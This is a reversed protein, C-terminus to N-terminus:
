LDLDETTGNVLLTSLGITKIEEFYPPNESKWHYSLDHLWSQILTLLTRQFIMRTISEPNYFALVKKTDLRAIEEFTPTKFIRMVNTNAYMLFPIHQYKEMKLIKLDPSSYREPFRVDIMLIPQDEQDKALISPEFDIATIEPLQLMM